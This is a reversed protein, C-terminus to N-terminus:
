PRRRDGDARHRQQARLLEGVDDVLRSSACASHSTAAAPRASLGGCACHGVSRGHDCKLAGSSPGAREFRQARRWASSTRRRARGRGVVGRQDREGRAGGALRLARHVEMAVHHRRAVAPRAVDARSAPRCREDADGGSAKVNPSPPRSSNGSRPAAGRDHKELLAERGFRQQAAIARLRAVIQKVAGVEYRAIAGKARAARGTAAQALADRGALRQRVGRALQPLVRGADLDDVADAGGLHEM